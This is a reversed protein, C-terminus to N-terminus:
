LLNGYSFFQTNCLQMNEVYGPFKMIKQIGPNPIMGQLYFYFSVEDIIIFVSILIEQAFM